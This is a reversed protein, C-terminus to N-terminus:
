TQQELKELQRLKDLVKNVHDKTDSLFDMSPSVEIKNDKLEYVNGYCKRDSNFISNLKLIPEELMSLGDRADAIVYTPYHSDKVSFIRDYTRATLELGRNLYRIINCTDTTANYSEVILFNAVKEADKKTDLELTFLNVM